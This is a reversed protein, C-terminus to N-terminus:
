GGMSSGVLIQPGASFDRIATLSQELWTGITKADFHGESLGRGSYHFRLYARGARAAFRDLHEAKTGHMDSKFGGPSVSAQGQSGLTGPAACVPPAAPALDTGWRSTNRVLEM